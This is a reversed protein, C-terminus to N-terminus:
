TLVRNEEKEEYIPYGTWRYMHGSWNDEVVRGAIETNGSEVQEGPGEQFRCVWEVLRNRGGREM